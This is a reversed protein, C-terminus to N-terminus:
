YPKSATMRDMIHQYPKRGLIEAADAATFPTGEPVAHFRPGSVRTVETVLREKIQRSSDVGLMGEMGATLKKQAVGLGYEVMHREIAKLKLIAEVRKISISYKEGLVRPTNKLPDALYDGYIAEKAADSLPAKPRFAPNMPFPIDRSGVYNTRGPQVSKYLVGQARMWRKYGMLRGPVGGTMKAAQLKAAEPAPAGEAKTAPAKEAAAGGSTKETTKAADASVAPEAPKGIEKSGGSKGEKGEERLVSALHISRSAPATPLCRKLVGSRITALMT